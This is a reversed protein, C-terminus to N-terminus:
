QKEEINENLVTSYERIADEFRGSFSLLRARFLLVPKAGPALELARDIFDLAQGFDGDMALLEALKLLAPVNEPHTHVVREFVQTAANFDGAALLADGLRRLVDLDENGMAIVSEFGMAAEAYSGAIFLREAEFKKVLDPHVRVYILPAALCISFALLTFTLYQRIKM